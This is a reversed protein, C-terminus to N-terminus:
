RRPFLLGVSIGTAPWVPGICDGEGAAKLRLKINYGWKSKPKELSKKGELKGM